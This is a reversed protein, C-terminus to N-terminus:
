REPVFENKAYYKEAFTSTRKSIIPLGIPKRTKPNYRRYGGKKSQAIITPMISKISPQYPNKGITMKQADRVYLPAFGTGVFQCGDSVPITNVCGM